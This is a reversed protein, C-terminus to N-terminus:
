YRIVTGLRLSNSFINANTKAFTVSRRSFRKEFYDARSLKGLFKPSFITVFSDTCWNRTRTSVKKKKKKGM